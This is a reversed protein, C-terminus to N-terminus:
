VSRRQTKKSTLSPFPVFLALWFAVQLHLNRALFPSARPEGEVVPPRVQTLVSGRLPHSGLAHFPSAPTPLADVRAQPSFLFALRMLAQRRLMM